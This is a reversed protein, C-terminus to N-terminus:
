EVSVAVGNEFVIRKGTSRYLWTERPAGAETSGQTVEDPPGMLARIESTTMNEHVRGAERPGAAEVGLRDIETQRQDAKRAADRAREIPASSGTEKDRSGLFGGASNKYLWLGVGVVLLLLVLRGM